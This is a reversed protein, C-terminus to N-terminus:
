FQEKSGVFGKGFLLRVDAIMGNFAPYSFENNAVTIRAYGNIPNHQLDVFEVRQTQEGPIDGFLM